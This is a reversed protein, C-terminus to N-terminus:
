NLDWFVKSTLDTLPDINENATVEAPPIPFINPFPGNQVVPLNLGTPYGTRRLDNYSEIGNGYMAIYKENIIVELREEDTAAGDYDALVNALYDSVDTADMAVGAFGAVESLSSSVASSLLVRPDGQTGLILAAEAEIFLRNTYTILPFIGAGQLGLTENHVQFSADDYAGGTPYIGPIARVNDDGASSGEGGNVGLLASSANQRYFYYPIRPDSSANMRSIIFSALNNELSGAAWDAQFNPHRGEPANSSTFRFTFNQNTSGILNGETLLANIASASAGADVLRTQNHMKLKLTNAMRIWAETNGGYILDGSSLPVNSEGQLDAIGDDILSILAPYIEEGLDTKPNIVTGNAESFPVDGFLDVLVSYIYAKQLKAAGAYHLDGDAEAQIIIVELDTLAGAYLDSWQIDYSSGNFGWNDFRGNIYHQVMTASAREIMSSLAVAYAGQAAPMIQVNTADAAFNPDDNIDLFSECSTGFITLALVLVGTRYKRNQTLKM